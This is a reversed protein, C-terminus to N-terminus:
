EEIEPQVDEGRTPANKFTELYQKKSAIEKGLDKSMQKIDILSKKAM